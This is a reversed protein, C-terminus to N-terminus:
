PVPQDEGAGTGRDPDDTVEPAPPRCIRVMAPRLLIGHYRYGNRLVAVVTNEPRDAAPIVEVAEACAPDFVTDLVAIKELGAAALIKELERIVLTPGHDTGPGNGPAAGAESLQEISDLLPLFRTLLTSQAYAALRAKENEARRRFNALDAALRLKDERHEAALAAQEQLAQWQARSITISDGSDEPAAGPQGPAPTEPAPHDATHDPKEKKRAM